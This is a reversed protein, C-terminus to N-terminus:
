LRYNWAANWEKKITSLCLKNYTWTSPIKGKEASAYGDPNFRIMVVHRHNLDRSIEMLWRNECTCDYEDHKNEDVEVIVIHSCMDLFLEPRRRSCGGEIRKDYVCTKNPFVKRLHTVVTTEKTKYNHYNPEDPFLHVFCRLCHGGKCRHVTARMECLLTKCLASGGCPKCLSKVKGHPCLGRGGCAKYTYKKRGHICSASGWEKCFYKNKGHQCRKRPEKVKNEVKMM